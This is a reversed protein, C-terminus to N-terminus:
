TGNHRTAQLFRAYDARMRARAGPFARGTLRRLGSADLVAVIHRPLVGAQPGSFSFDPGSVTRFQQSAYKAPNLQLDAALLWTARQLKSWQWADVDGQSIKRGTTEDSPWGWGGLLDDILDEAQVILRTADRDSLVADDVGLEDRLQQMTCYHVTAAAPTQTISPAVDFHGQAVGAASGTAAWEYWWQGDDNTAVIGRYVGTSDRVIEPGTGYTYITLTGNPAKITLTLTGPDALTNTATVRFEAPLEVTDGKIYAL